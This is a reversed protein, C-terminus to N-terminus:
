PLWGPLALPQQRGEWGCFNIRVTIEVMIEMVIVMATGMLIETVIGTLIETAIEMRIPMNITAMMPASARRIRSAMMISITQVAMHKRTGPTRNNTMTIM